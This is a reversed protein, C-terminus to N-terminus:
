QNAQRFIYCLLNNRTDQLIRCWSINASIRGNECVSGHILKYSNQFVDRSLRDKVQMFLRSLVTIGVYYLNNMQLNIRTKDLLLICSATAYTLTEIRPLPAEDPDHCSHRWVVRVLSDKITCPVTRMFRKYAPISYTSSVIPFQDQM